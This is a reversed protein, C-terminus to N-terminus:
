THIWCWVYVRQLGCAAGCVQNGGYASGGGIGFESYQLELTGADALGRVDIGYGSLMEECLIFASNEFEKLAFGSGELNYPAYASIGLFDLQQTFLRRLADVDIQPIGDRSGAPPEMGVQWALWSLRSSGFQKNVSTLDDLRNYNLRSPLM